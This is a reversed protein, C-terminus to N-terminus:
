LTNSFNVRSKRSKSSAENKILPNQEVASMAAVEIFNGKM